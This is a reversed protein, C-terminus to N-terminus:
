SHWRIIIALIAAALPRKLKHGLHRLPGPLVTTLCGGLAAHVRAEASARRGKHGLHIVEAIGASGLSAAVCRAAVPLVAVVAVPLAAVTVQGPGVGPAAGLRRQGAVVLRARRDLDTANRVYEARAAPSRPFLTRAAQAHSARAPIRDLTALLARTSAATPAAAPRATGSGPTAAAAAPAGVGSLLVCLALSLSVTRARGPRPLHSPL